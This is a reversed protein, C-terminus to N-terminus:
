INRSKTGAAGRDANGGGLRPKKLHPAPEVTKGEGRPRRNDDKGMKKRAERKKGVVQCGDDVGRSLNMEREVRQNAKNSKLEWRAQCKKFGAPEKIKVDRRQGLGKKGSPSRVTGNKKKDKDGSTKRGEKGGEKERGGSVQWRQCTSSAKKGDQLHGKKERYTILNLPREKRKGKKPGGLSSRGL